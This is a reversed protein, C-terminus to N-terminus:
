AYYTTATGTVLIGNGLAYVHSDPAPPSIPYQTTVQGTPGDLAAVGSPTPVLISADGLDPVTASGDSTSVTPLTSATATWQQTGGSSVAYVTGAIWILENPGATTSAVPTAATPAPTLSLQAVRTGKALDYTVLQRTAPDVAAIISDAAVPVTSVNKQRWLVKNKKDDTDAKDDFGAVRDRLLLQDGDACHESMLVGATGPVVATLRCGDGAPFTWRDYASIPDIAYVFDATWVYLTDATAIMPPHGNVTLGNEDLTRTWARKGTGTEFASVEDCNGSNAYIAITKDQVQAVECVTRDSRSYTWDATGTLANRGTVTHASYTVVTGDAFPAGIAARDPSQWRATPTVPPTGAPVSPPASKATRLHVHSIEGASWVVIAVAVAIVALGAIVALYWVRQRRMSTVYRRLEDPPEPPEPRERREDLDTESV